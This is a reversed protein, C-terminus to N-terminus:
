RLGEPERHYIRWGPGSLGFYAFPIQKLTCGCDKSIQKAREQPSLGEIETLVFWNPHATCWQDRPVETVPVNLRRGYYQLSALASEPQTTGYVIPGDKAMRRVLGLYDGRNNSYFFTLLTMNFLLTVLLVGVALVRHRDSRVFTRGCWEGLGMLAITGFPLFYRAYSTNPLCGAFFIIPVILLSTSYFTERRDSRLFIHGIIAYLAAVALLCNWEDVQLWGFLIIVLTGYARWFDVPNFPIRYGLDFTGAHAVLCWAVPAMALAGPLMTGITEGISRILNGTRQHRERLMWLAVIAATQIMLIHCLFGLCLWLALVWSTRRTFGPKEEELANQTTAIALLTFLILGSYGRAQSGYEIMLFNTVFLWMTALVAVRGWRRVAWGAAPVSAAGFLIAPARYTMVSADQGVWYMWLSNLFHNNAHNISWFVEGASHIPRVLSLSWTEDLWLDGKAAQWRLVLGLVTIGFGVKLFTKRAIVNFNANMSNRLPPNPIISTGVLPQCGM